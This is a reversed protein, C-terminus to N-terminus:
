WTDDALVNKGDFSYIPVNDKMRGETFIADWSDFLVEDQFLCSLVLPESCRAVPPASLENGVEPTTAGESQRDALPGQGVQPRHQPPGPAQGVPLGPFNGEDRHGSGPHLVPLRRRPHGEHIWDSAHQPRDPPATSVGVCEADSCM